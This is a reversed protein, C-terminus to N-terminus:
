SVEPATQFAKCGCPDAKAGTSISCAKRIKSSTLNHFVDLHGCVCRPGSAAVHGCDSRAPATPTQSTTM